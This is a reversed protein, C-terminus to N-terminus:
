PRAASVVEIGKELVEDRGAIVGRLTRTVPVTPQIGVGHHRSGDHKLAKMGTWVVFYGGPLGFPNINGNTGATPGGVIEALRYHAVIGLYTEAYSIARADTLFAAKGALRPPQPVVPWEGSREFAMGERDPRTVVPVHWQPSDITAGTLHALVVPSVNNPYGRLDFVIGRAAALRDLAAAFDDDSIRDLDVYFIGPRLEAIKEPRPEHFGPDDVPISYRLEVEASGVPDGEPPQLRLRAAADRPGSVLRELAVQRRRQPTAASIMEELATLAALSPKGDVATVVSGRPVGPAKGADVHTVVLRDEIWEWVLPLRHTNTAGPGSVGGHGDRLAAVLRRLTGLFAAEDADTAAARLARRLEAAWDTGAVDFYPYFHQFVGWALAVAALRSARDNGSPLFGEPKDASPPLLGAPARPLTGSGNTYLALPVLAAVGAGLDAALPEQATAEVRESKYMSRSAALGVGFHRWAVIHPTAGAPPTLEVDPREGGAPFVRLAPALPQFVAALAAALAAPTAASEVAQVGALAVHAWDAAAAEDSPHFFRVYGLLRTFAVLNDLGREDLPRPPENGAGAAGLIELSASDIWAKGSGALLLGMRLTAADGPVEGLFEVRRWEPATVPRDLLSNAFVQEGGARALWIVLQAQGEGHPVEARVAARFRVRRGRYPAADLTQALIGPAWWDRPAGALGLEACRAGGDPHEAVLRAGYGAAASDAPVTWGAPLRGLEGQEFDLNVPAALPPVPVTIPAAAPAATATEAAAALVPLAAALVAAAVLPSLRPLPM